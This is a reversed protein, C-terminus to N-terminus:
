TGPIAWIETLSTEGVRLLRALTAAQAVPDDRDLCALVHRTVRMLMPMGLQDAIAGLGRVNQRLEEIRNERYSAEVHTLRAALEELARCVVDEAAHQGLKLFLDDLRDPDLRVTERQRLLTVHELIEGVSKLHGWM